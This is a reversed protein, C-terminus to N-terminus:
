SGSVAFYVSGLIGSAVVITLIAAGAKQGTTVATTTTGTSSSSDGTGASPNSTSNGGTRSTVPAYASSNPMSILNSWFVNLASMQEELGIEDDWDGTYWKIGCTDNGAGTCSEAAGQASNQLHPLITDYTSPVILAIFALWGSVLGKFLIENRNCIETPECSIETLVNNYSTPVFLDITV